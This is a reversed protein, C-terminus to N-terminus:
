RLAAKELARTGAIFLKARIVRGVRPMVNCVFSGGRDIGHRLKWKLLGRLPSAGFVRWRQVYVERIPLSPRVLEAVGVTTRERDKRARRLNCATM